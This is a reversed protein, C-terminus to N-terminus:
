DAHSQVSELLRDFEGSAIMPQLKRWGPVHTEGIFIQPVIDVTQGCRRHMEQAAPTDAFADVAEDWEVAHAMFSLGRSRFFEIAETCLGCVPAYYVEITNM